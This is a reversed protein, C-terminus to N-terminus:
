FEVGALRAGLVAMFYALVGYGTFTALLIRSAVGRGLRPGMLFPYAIRTAVYIAGGVTAWTPGVFVATLWLLALFPPMHELTNGIKRDAALQERDTNFYRDYKEGRDQYQRVLRNKVFLLNIMAAYYVGMYVLTVLLPGAYHAANM